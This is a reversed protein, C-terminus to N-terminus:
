NLYAIANKPDIRIAEDLDVLARDYEQKKNYTWGRNNFAVAM